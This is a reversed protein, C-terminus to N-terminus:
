RSATEIRGVIDLTRKRIVGVIRCTDGLLTVSYLLLGWFFVFSVVKCFLRRDMGLSCPRTFEWKRVMTVFSNGAIVRVYSRGRARPM